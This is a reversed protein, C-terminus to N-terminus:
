RLGLGPGAEVSPSAKLWTGETHDIQFYLDLVAPTNPSYTNSVQFTFTAETGYAIDGTLPTVAVILPNATRRAANIVTVNNAVYIKNTVSNVAITNPREGTAVTTTTNSEGDIDRGSLFGELVCQNFTMRDSILTSFWQYINIM